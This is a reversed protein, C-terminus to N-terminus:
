HSADREELGIGLNLIRKDESIACNIKHIITKLEVERQESDPNRTLWIIIGHLVLDLSYSSRIVRLPETYPVLGVRYNDSYVPVFFM